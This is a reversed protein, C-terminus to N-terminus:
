FEIIRFSESFTKLAAAEDANFAFVVYALFAVPAWTLCLAAKTALLVPDNRVLAPDTGPTVVLDIVAEAM